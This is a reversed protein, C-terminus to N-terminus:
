CGRGGKKMPMKKTVKKTVKKKTAMPSPTLSISYQTKLLDVLVAMHVVNLIEELDEINLRYSYPVIDQTINGFEIKMERTYSDLAKRIKKELDKITDKVIIKSNKQILKKM